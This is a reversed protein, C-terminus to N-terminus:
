VWEFGGTLSTIKINLINLAFLDQLISIKFQKRNPERWALRSMILSVATLM